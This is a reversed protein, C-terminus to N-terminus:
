VGFLNFFKPFFSILENVNKSMKLRFIVWRGFFANAVHGKREVLMTNSSLKARAHVFDFNRFVMDKSLVHKKEGKRKRRKKDKQQLLQGEVQSAELELIGSFADDFRAIRVM